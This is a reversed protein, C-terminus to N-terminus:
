THQRSGSGAFGVGGRKIQDPHCPKFGQSANCRSGWAAAHSEARSTLLFTLHNSIKVMRELSGQLRSVCRVTVVFFAHLKCCPSRFPNLETFLWKGQVFPTSSALSAPPLSSLAFFAKCRSLPVESVLPWVKASGFIISGLEHKFHAKHSPCAIVFQSPKFQAGAAKACGLHYSCPCREVRCGVTAGREGCRCTTCTHLTLIHTNHVHTSHM